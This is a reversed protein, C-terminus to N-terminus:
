CQAAQRRHNPCQKNETVPQTPSVAGMHVDRCVRLVCEVGKVATLLVVSQGNIITIKLSVTYLDQQHVTM